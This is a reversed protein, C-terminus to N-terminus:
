RAATPSGGSRSAATPARRRAPARWGGLLAGREPQRRRRARAAPPAGRPGLGAGHPGLRGLRRAQWRTRGRDRHGQRPPGRPPDAARRAALDWLGVTGDDSASVARGDGPVFAVANVAADHGYLRALVTSTRAPGLPDPQLRLERDARPQRRGLRRRRQGPRWARRAGAARGGPRGRAAPVAGRRPPLPVASRVGAIRRDAASLALHPPAARARERRRGRPAGPFADPDDSM